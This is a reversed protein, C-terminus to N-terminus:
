ADTFRPSRRTLRRATTTLPPCSPSQADRSPPSLRVHPSPILDARREADGNSSLRSGGSLSSRPTPAFRRLFLRDADFNRGSPTRRPPPRRGRTSRDPTEPSTTLAPSSSRFPAAGVAETPTPRGFPQPAVGAHIAPRRRFAPKANAGDHGLVIPLANSSTGSTRLRRQRQSHTAGANAPM